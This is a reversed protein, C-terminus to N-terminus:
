QKETINFSVTAEAGNGSNPACTALIVNGPGFVAAQPDLSLDLLDSGVKNLNIGFLFTGGSFATASTDQQLTSVGSAVNTWSADTLTPNAYFNISCPKTHEVSVSIVNIKVVSRNRLSNFVENVRFAVVPTEVATGVLTQNGKVGLRLGINERNGENFIGVSASSVSINTTNSTNEAAMYFPLNPNDLSPRTYTNAYEITHVLHFEGDDPDEIFFTIAGAGLYQLAIQFVNLKTPDLTVGTLGNGDFIDAGNWSAQPIWTDTSAVGAVSQAFSGVATTAGSLSYTGTRSGADWSTFVVTSGVATATWGRGVDSYDHAAIENATTTTNGSNTVAVTADANGDLTITINEATTSATTVTLTRIEQIGGYKHLVGFSTGNYGFFFGEGDDGFGIVQESNAVGTTFKATFRAKLGYGPNYHVTKTSRIVGSSNAAAGTSCTAMSNGNTVSGSQNARSTVLVPNIGYTYSLQVEPELSGVLQEGFATKGEQPSTVQLAKNDTVTATTNGVGSIVSKTIIADADDAINFGIPASSPLFNDGYYTSLRFASQASAGNVYRVRFYRGLKVATHYEPISASCSFGTTPFTHWNTGDVSFDFYLTGAQDAFSYVGVHPLDNQEGTGTYTAAGTLPTTTTNGTSTLGKKAIGNADVSLKTYTSTDQDYGWPVVDKAMADSNHEESSTGTYKGTNGSM